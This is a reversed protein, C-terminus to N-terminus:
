TEESTIHYNRKVACANATWEVRKAVDYLPRGDGAEQKFYAREKFVIEGAEKQSIPCTSRLIVTYNISLVECCVEEYCGACLVHIYATVPSFLAQSVGVTHCSCM